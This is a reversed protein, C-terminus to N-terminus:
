RTFNGFPRAVRVPPAGVRGHQRQKQGRRRRPAQRGNVSTEVMRQEKMSAFLADLTHPRPKSMIAKDKGSLNKEAAKKPVPAVAFRPKSWNVARSHTPRNLANTGVERTVSFQNGHFNSRRQALVGQRISSRSDVFQQLKSTGQRQSTNNGFTGRSKIPARGSRESSTKKSMKIIEDLSMDMKKETLAIM